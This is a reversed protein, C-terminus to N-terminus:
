LVSVSGFITGIAFVFAFTASVGAQIGASRDGAEAEQVGASRTVGGRPESVAWTGAAWQGNGRGLGLGL